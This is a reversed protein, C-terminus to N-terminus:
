ARRSPRSAAAWYRLSGYLTALYFFVVMLETRQTVYAVTETVLPHVAWLLAVALALPGAGTRLGEDFHPLRLTRRVIAWLLWRALMHLVINVARYGRPDVGGFHYNVAFSLNVLPRASTPIKPPRTSRVGIKERVSAHGFDRISGNKLVSIDDDFNFPADLSRSYVTWVM